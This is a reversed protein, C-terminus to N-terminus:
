QLKEGQANRQSLTFAAELAARMANLMVDREDAHVRGYNVFARVADNLAEDTVPQQLSRITALLRPVDTRAAAIFVADNDLNGAVDCSAIILPEDAEDSRLTAHDVMAVTGDPSIEAVWPGVTARSAREEIEQLERAGLPSQM